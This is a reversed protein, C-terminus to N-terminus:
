GLLFLKIEENTNLGYVATRVSPMGALVRPIRTSAEHLLLVRKGAAAALACEVPVSQDDPLFVAIVSDASIIRRALEVAFGRADMEELLPDAFPLRAQHRPSVGIIAQILQYCERVWSPQRTTSRLVPGAIYVPM